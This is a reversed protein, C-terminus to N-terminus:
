QFRALFASLFTTGPPDTHVNASRGFQLRGAFPAGRKDASREQERRGHVRLLKRRLANGYASRDKCAIARRAVAGAHAIGLSREVQALERRVLM